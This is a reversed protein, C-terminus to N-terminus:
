GKKLELGYEALWERIRTLTKSGCGPVKLLDLETIRESFEKLPTKTLSMKKIGMVGIISNHSRAPLEQMADWLMLPVIDASSAEETEVTPLTEEEEVPEETEYFVGLKRLLWAKFSGVKLTQRDIFVEM